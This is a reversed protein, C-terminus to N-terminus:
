QRKRAITRSLVGSWTYTVSPTCDASFKPIGEGVTLASISHSSDPRARVMRAKRLLIGTLWSRLKGKGEYRTASEIAQLFTDQVLDEAHAEDQSLHAALILLEPALADFVRALAATNGHQRFEQFDQEIPPM